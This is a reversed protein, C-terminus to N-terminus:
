TSTKAVVVANASKKTIANSSIIGPLNLSDAAKNWLEWEKHNTYEMHCSVDGEFAKQNMKGSAM